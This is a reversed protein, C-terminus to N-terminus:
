TNVTSYVDSGSFATVINKLGKRIRTFVRPLNTILAVVNSVFIKSLLELGDLPTYPISNFVGINSNRLVKPLIIIDVSVNVKPVIFGLVVILGM